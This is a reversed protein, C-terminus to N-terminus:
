ISKYKVHCPAGTVHPRSNKPLHLSDYFAEFTTSSGTDEVFGPIIELNDGLIMLSRERHKLFEVTHVWCQKVRNTM